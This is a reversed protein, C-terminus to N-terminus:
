ALSSEAHSGRSGLQRWQVERLAQGCRREVLEIGSDRKKLKTNSYPILKGEVNLCYSIMLGTKIGYAKIAISKDYGYVIKFGNNFINMGIGPLDLVRFTDAGKFTYLEREINGDKDEWRKQLYIYVEPEDHGEITSVGVGLAKTVVRKESVRAKLDLMIAKPKQTFPIGMDISGYPDNASRVPEIVAGLFLTGAIAVRIDLMGLVRVTEMRTDLRACWGNGRREPQTTNAGKAVGMVNAYANSIGWITNGAFTYPKNGKICDITDTPGLIYLTKIKGGLLNSEKIYRVTWSEMDGYKLPVIREQASVFNVVVLLLGLIIKKMLKKTFSLIM